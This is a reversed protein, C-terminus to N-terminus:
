DPSAADPEFLAARSPTNVAGVMGKRRMADRIVSFV